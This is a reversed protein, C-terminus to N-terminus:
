ERPSAYKQVHMMLVSILLALYFYGLWAEAIAIIRAKPVPSLGGFSLTTWTAMSLCFADWSSHPLVGGDYLGTDKFAAAFVGVSGVISALIKGFQPLVLLEHQRSVVNWISTTLIVLLIGLDISTRSANLPQPSQVLRTFGLGAASFLGVFIWTTLIFRGLGKVVARWRPAISRHFKTLFARM